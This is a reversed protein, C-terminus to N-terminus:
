FNLRLGVGNQSSGFSLNTDKNAAKMRTAGICWMPIGATTAASGITLFAIGASIASYNPRYDYSYRYYVYDGPALYCPIGIAFTAVVGAVTLGIGANRLKRSKDFDFERIEKKEVKPAFAFSSNVQKQTVSQSSSNIYYIDGESKSYYYRAFNPDSLLKYKEIDEKKYDEVAEVGAKAEKYHGAFGQITARYKNKGQLPSYEIKVIPDIIVDINNNLLCRHEAEAIADNKTLQFDSEAKVTQKYNPVVELAIQKVGISQQKVGLTRATYQYTSCSASLICLLPILLKRM